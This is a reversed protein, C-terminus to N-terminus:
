SIAGMEEFKTEGKAKKAAVRNKPGEEEKLEEELRQIRFISVVLGAIAIRKQAALVVFEAKVSLWAIM